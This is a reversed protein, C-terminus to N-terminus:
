LDINYENEGVKKMPCTANLHVINGKSTTIHSYMGDIHNFIAWTSGDTTELDTIKAGKPLDYLKLKEKKTM